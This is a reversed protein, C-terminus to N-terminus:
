SVGVEEAVTVGWELTVKEVNARTMQRFTNLTYSSGLSWSLFPSPLRVSPSTPM